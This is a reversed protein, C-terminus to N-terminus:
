QVTSIYQKGKVIEEVHLVTKAVDVCSNTMKRYAEQWSLAMPINGEEMCNHYQTELSKAMRALGEGHRYLDTWSRLQRSM